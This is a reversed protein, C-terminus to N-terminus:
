VSPAVPCTVPGGSFVTGGLWDLLSDPAHDAGLARPLGENTSDADLVCAAYRAEAPAKALLVTCTSM